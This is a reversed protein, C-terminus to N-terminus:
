AVMTRGANELGANETAGSHYNKQLFHEVCVTWMAEHMNVPMNLNCREFYETPSSLTIISTQCKLKIFFFRIENAPNVAM